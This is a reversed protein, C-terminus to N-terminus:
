RDKTHFFGSTIKVLVEYVVNVNIGRELVTQPTALLEADEQGQRAKRTSTHGQFETPFPFSFPWEYRGQLKGTNPQAAGEAGPSGSKWLPHTVELFLHSGESLSSTM